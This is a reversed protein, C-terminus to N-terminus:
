INKSYHIMIKLYYTTQKLKNNSINTMKSNFIKIVKERYTIILGSTVILFIGAFEINEPWVDFSVQEM